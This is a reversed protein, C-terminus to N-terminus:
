LMPFFASARAMATLSLVYRSDLGIGVGVIASDSLVLRSLQAAIVWVACKSQGHEEYVQGQVASPQLTQRLGSKEQDM